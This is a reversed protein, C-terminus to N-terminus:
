HSGHGHPTVDSHLLSRAVKHFRDHVYALVDWRAEESLVGDFAPMSSGLSKFPEVSGGESVRWYLYADNKGPQLHFHNTLDAPPHDLSAALHGTGRGDDGHCSVCNEQYLQKGRAIAKPKNWHTGRLSIYAPPPVVWKGHAHGGLGGANRGMASGHQVTPKEENEHGAGAMSVMPFLFSLALIGAALWHSSNLKLM